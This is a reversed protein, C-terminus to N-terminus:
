MGSDETYKQVEDIKGKYGTASYGEGIILADYYFEEVEFSKNDIKVFYTGNETYKDTCIGREAFPEKELELFVSAVVALTFVIIITFAFFGFFAEVDRGTSTAM